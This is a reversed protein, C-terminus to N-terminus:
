RTMASRRRRVCLLSGAALALTTPEPVLSQALALDSAFASGGLLNAADSSLFSGNYNQALSLLDTFDVVGSYDFDGQSWTKSTGNYNQALALLDSFNVTGSLDADGRLTLKALVADADVALGGFTPTTANIVGIALGPGSAFTSILRGDLVAAVIDSLPNTGTYDVILGNNSIDFTTGAALSLSTVSTTGSGATGSQLAVSGNQVTLAGGRINKVSLLGPGFKTLSKGASNFNGTITLSSSPDVEVLLNKNTNLTTTIFHNGIVRIDGPTWAAGTMTISGTGGLTYANVTNDLTLQQLQIAANVNVTRPATINGAFRARDYSANPVGGYNWATNPVGGVTFTQAHRWTTGTWNSNDADTDWVLSNSHKWEFNDYLGFKPADAQGTGPTADPNQFALWAYGNQSPGGTAFGINDAVKQGDVSIDLAFNGLTGTYNAGLEVRYFKNPDIDYGAWGAIPTTGAAGTFARLTIKGPTVEGLRSARLAVVTFADTTQLQIENRYTGAAVTSVVGPAWDVSVKSSFVVNTNTFPRSGGPAELANAIARVNGPIASTGQLKMANTLVGATSDYLGAVQLPSPTYATGTGYDNGAGPVVVQSFTASASNPQTGSLQSWFSGNSFNHVQQGVTAYGTLNFGNGADDPELSTAANYPNWDDAFLTTPWPSNPGSTWYRRSEAQAVTAFAASALVTAIVATRTRGNKAANLM